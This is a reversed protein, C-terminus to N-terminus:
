SSQVPVNCSRSKISLRRQMLLSENPPSLGVIIGGCDDYADSIKLQNINMAQYGHLLTERELATVISNRNIHYTEKKNNSTTTNNNHKTILDCNKLHKKDGVNNENDDYDDNNRKNTVHNPGYVNEDNLNVNQRRVIGSRWSQKEDRQQGYQQASQRIHQACGGDQHHYSRIIDNNSKKIYHHNKLRNNQHHYGNKNNNYNNNYYNNYSLNRYHNKPKTSGSNTYNIYATTTPHKFKDETWRGKPPSPSAENTTNGRYRWNQEPPITRQSNISIERIPSSEMKKSASPSPQKKDMKADCNEEESSTSSSKQSKIEDIISPPPTVEEEEIKSEAMTDLKEACEDSESNQPKQEKEQKVSPQYINPREKTMYDYRMSFHQLIVRKVAM